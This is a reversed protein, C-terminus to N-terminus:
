SSQRLQFGCGLDFPAAETILGMSMGVMWFCEDGGIFRLSAPYNNPFRFFPHSIGELVFRFEIFGYRL